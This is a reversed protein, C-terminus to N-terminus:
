YILVKINSMINSESAFNKPKVLTLPKTSTATITINTLDDDYYIYDMINIFNMFHKQLPYVYDKSLHDMKVTVTITDSATINMFNSCTFSPRINYIIVTAPPLKTFTSIIFSTQNVINPTLTQLQLHNYHIPNNINDNITIYNITSNIDIKNGTWVVGTSSTLYNVKNQLLYQM